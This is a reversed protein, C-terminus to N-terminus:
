RGRGKPRQLAAFDAALKSGPPVLKPAPPRVLGDDAGPREVVPIRLKLSSVTLPQQNNSPRGYNALPAGDADAALLELKPVHGAAFTWGNPHLQYVQRTPGGTAPRWLGRAVLTETGGPAVDLLRAAVQSTDGPLTFNAIVTGAGLLTYGGAPETALRYVAAGAPDTAPVSQCASSTIPNFVGGTTSSPAITKTASDAFRIEGPAIRAWNRARYPGGSPASSPCTQTYAEVGEPPRRGVGKLYYDMWADVRARLAGTVDSKNQGRPHGFDGFFLALDARPYQTRTRNYFRIAEDAPFLDDTFGNSILLPAPPVSHDIYYSSHHATLEQLAAQVNAGYPEGAEIAAKWGTLDASPDSGQPAYFGPALLGSVYLGNVYSQKEVGFRGRYPSDALYDLTSGNPQLSYALDTWPVNPAAAAIRMRKGGPSRWPVLRGDPLVKRNKLAGLAMSMGGGYSGGIAGIRRPKILGADALQGAFEQADRVEYRNDILRVYGKACAGGAAARSAASGCSERFGRDTMSFVAYGRDLWPQMSSLGLKGGGYGHFLMILPYKDDRGSAPAPPFAVNVDIPTGDWAPATSRPSSSGCFRV